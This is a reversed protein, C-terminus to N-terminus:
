FYNCIKLLRGWNFVDILQDPMYRWIFVDILQERM